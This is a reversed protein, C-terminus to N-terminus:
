FKCFLMLQQFIVQLGCQWLVQKTVKYRSSEQICRRAGPSRTFRRTGQSKRTGESRQTLKVKVKVGRCMQEGGQKAHDNGNSPPTSFSWSSVCELSDRSSLVTCNFKFEAAELRQWYKCGNKHERRRQCECYPWMLPWTLLHSNSACNHLLCAPFAISWNSLRGIQVGTLHVLCNSNSNLAM